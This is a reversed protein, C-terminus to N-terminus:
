PPPSPVGGPNQLLIPPKNGIAGHPRDENDEPLDATRCVSTSKEPATSASYIGISPAPGAHDPPAVAPVKVSGCPGSAERSIM